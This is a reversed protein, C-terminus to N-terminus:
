RSSRGACIFTTSTSAAVLVRKENRRNVCGGSCCVREFTSKPPMREIPTQGLRGVIGCHAGVRWKADDGSIVGPDGNRVEFAGKCKPPINEAEFERMSSM